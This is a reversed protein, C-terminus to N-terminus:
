YMKLDVRTVAAVIFYDEAQSNKRWCAAAHGIGGV